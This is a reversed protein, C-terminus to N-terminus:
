KPLRSVTREYRARMEKEAEQAAQRAEEWAEQIQGQLQRVARRLAAGADDNQAFGEEPVEEGGPEEDRHPARGPGLLLAAALGIGLGLLLGIVFRM